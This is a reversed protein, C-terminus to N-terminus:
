LKNLDRQEKGEDRSFQLIDEMDADRKTDIYQHVSSRYMPQLLNIFM